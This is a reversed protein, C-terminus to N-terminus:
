EEAILMFHNKKQLLVIVMYEKAVGEPIYKSLLVKCVSKIMLAM